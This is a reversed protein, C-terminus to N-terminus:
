YKQAVHNIKLKLKLQPFGPPTEKNIYELAFLDENSEVKDASKFIKSDGPFQNIMKENIM